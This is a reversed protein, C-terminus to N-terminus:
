SLLILRYSCIIERGAKVPQAAIKKVLNNGRSRLSWGGGARMGIGGVVSRLGRAGKGGSGEQGGLAAERLFGVVFTGLSSAALISSPRFPFSFSNQSCVEDFFRYRECNSERSELTLLYSDEHECSLHLM